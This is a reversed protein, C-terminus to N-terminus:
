IGRKIRDLNRAIVPTVTQVSKELARGVARSSITAGSIADIEWPNRKTGHKVATIPHDHRADLNKFNALFEADSRIKDGLGPTEHMGVVQFGTITRTDPNYSYMTSIDAAYGRDSAEIVLGLFNDSADFGAFFRHGESELGPIIKLDGSPEYSYIVQKHLGPLLLEVSERMLTEKNSRIRAKTTAQTAVILIGCALSVAGLVKIMPFAASTHGPDNNAAANM